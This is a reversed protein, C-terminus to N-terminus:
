PPLSSRAGEGGHVHASMNGYLAGDPKTLWFGKDDKDRISVAQEKAM